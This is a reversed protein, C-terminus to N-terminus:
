LSNSILGHLYGKSEITPPKMGQTDGVASSHLAFLIQHQIEPINGIWIRSKFYILGMILTYHGSPSM